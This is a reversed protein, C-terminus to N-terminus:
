FQYRMGLVFTRPQGPRYAIDDSGVQNRTYTSYIRDTLNLVRGYVEFQRNLPLSALLNTLNHGGYSQNNTKWQSM